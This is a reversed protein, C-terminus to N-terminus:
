RKQFRLLYTEWKKAIKEKACLQNICLANKSFVIKLQNDNVLHSLAEAIAEVDGVDVIEGSNTMACLEAAGGGGCDTSVCPMGISLAEMLANPMGEYKSTLLFVESTRISELPKLSKGHLVIKGQMGMEEIIKKYLKRDSGDGYIDLTYGPNTKLFKAFAKFMICHDKQFNDLRAVTAISKKTNNIDWRIGSDIVPNAIVAARKGISKAFYDKIRETQFVYGSAFRYLIWRVFKESQKRPDYVPDNRECVVLPISVGFMAPITNVNCVSGFSVVVDPSLQKVVNRINKWRKLIRNIKNGTAKTGYTTIGNESRVSGVEDELLIVSVRYGKKAFESAIISLVKDAGSYNMAGIVFCIHEM